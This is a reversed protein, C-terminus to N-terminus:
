IWLMYLDMYSSCFRFHFYAEDINLDVTDVDVIYDAIGVLEMREETGAINLNIYLFICEKETDWNTDFLCYWQELHYSFFIGNRTSPNRFITVM